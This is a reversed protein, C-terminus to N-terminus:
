SAVLILPQKCSRTTTRMSTQRPVPELPMNKELKVAAVVAVQTNHANKQTDRAMM